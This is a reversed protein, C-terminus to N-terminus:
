SRTETIPITDVFGREIVFGRFPKFLVIDHRYTDNVKYQYAQKLARIQINIKTFVRDTTFDVDGAFLIGAWIRKLGMCHAATLIWTPALISGSCDWVRGEEKGMFYIAFPYQSVHTVFGGFVRNGLRGNDEKVSRWQEIAERGMRLEEPTNLGCGTM